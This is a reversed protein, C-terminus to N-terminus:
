RIALHSLDWEGFLWALFPEGWFKRALHTQFSLEQISPQKDDRDEPPVLWFWYAQTPGAHDRCCFIGAPKDPTAPIPCGAMVWPGMLCVIEALEGCTYCAPKTREPPNSEVANATTKNM